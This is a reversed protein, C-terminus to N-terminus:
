QGRVGSGQGRRREQGRVGSGQGRRRGQGRDGSGQGRRGAPVGGRARRGMQDQVARLQQQAAGPLGGGVGPLHPQRLSPHGAIFSNALRPLSVQCVPLSMEQWAQGATVRGDQPARHPPPQPHQTHTPKAVCEGFDSRIRQLDPSHTAPQDFENCDPRNM